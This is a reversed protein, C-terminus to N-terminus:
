RSFLLFFLAFMLVFALIGTVAMYAVVGVTNDGGTKGNYKNGCNRCKVHSLLKPGLAGGWWTFKLLQPDPTACKPCSAYNAAV